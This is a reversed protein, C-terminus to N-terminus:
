GAGDQGLGAPLAVVAGAMQFTAAATSSTRLILSVGRRIRVLPRLLTEGQDTVGYSQGSTSELVTWRGVAMLTTAPTTDGKGRMTSPWSMEVLGTNLFGGGASRRITCYLLWIDFGPPVLTPFGNVGATVAYPNVSTSETTGASHVNEWTFYFLGSSGAFTLSRRVIPLIDLVQSVNGDDLSTTQEGGRGLQLIQNLLDLAGSDLQLTM